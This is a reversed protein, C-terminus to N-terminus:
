VAAKTPEEGAALKEDLVRRVIGPDAEEADRFERADYVQEKTLGADAATPALNDDGM